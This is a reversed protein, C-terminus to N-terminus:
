NILYFFIQIYSSYQQVCYLIGRRLFASNSQISPESRYHSYKRGDNKTLRHNLIVAFQTHHLKIYDFGTVRISLSVGLKVFIFSLIEHLRGLMPASPELHTPPALTESDYHGWEERGSNRCLTVFMALPVDINRKKARKHAEVLPAISICVFTQSKVRPGTCLFLVFCSFMFPFCGLYWVGM